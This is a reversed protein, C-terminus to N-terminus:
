LVKKFMQQGNLYDNITLYGNTVAISVSGLRTNTREISAFEISQTKQQYHQSLPLSGYTSPRATCKTSVMDRLRKHEVRLILSTM